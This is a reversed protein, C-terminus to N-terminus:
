MANVWIIIEDFKLWTIEKLKFSAGKGDIKRLGFFWNWWFPKTECYAYCAILMEKDEWNVRRTTWYM